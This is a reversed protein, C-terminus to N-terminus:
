LAGDHLISVSGCCSFTVGVGVKVGYGPAVALPGLERTYAHVCACVVHVTGCAHVVHVYRNTTHVCASVLNIKQSQNLKKKKLEFKQSKLWNQSVIPCVTPM